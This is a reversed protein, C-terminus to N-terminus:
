PLRGRLRVARSAPPVLEVERAVVRLQLYRERVSGQIPAVAGLSVAARRVLFTVFTIEIPPRPLQDSYTLVKRLNYRTIKGEKSYFALPQEPVKRDAM